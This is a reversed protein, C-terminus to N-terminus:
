CGRREPNFQEAWAYWGVEHGRGEARAERMDQKFHVDAREGLKENAQDLRVQLADREKEAAEARSTLKTVSTELERARQHANQGDHFQEYWRSDAAPAKSAGGNDYKAAKHRLVAKEFRTMVVTDDMRRRKRLEEKVVESQQDDQHEVKAKVARELQLWKPIIGIREYTVLHLVPSMANTKKLRKEMAHRWLMPNIRHNYKNMDFAFPCAPTMKGIAVFTAGGPLKFKATFRVTYAIDTPTDFGPEFYHGRYTTADHHRLEIDFEKIPATTLGYGKFLSHFEGEVGDGDRHIKRGIMCKLERVIDHKSTSLDFLLRNSYTFVAAYMSRWEPKYICSEKRELKANDFDLYVYDHVARNDISTKSNLTLAAGAPTVVSPHMRLRGGGAVTPGKQIWLKIQLARAKARYEDCFKSCTARFANLVQANERVTAEVLAEYQTHKIVLLQSRKTERAEDDDDNDDDSVNMQVHNPDFPVYDPVDWKDVIKGIADDPLDMIFVGADM